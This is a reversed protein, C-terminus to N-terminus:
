WHRGGAVHAWRKSIGLAQRYDTCTSHSQADRAEPCAPTLALPEWTLTGQSLVACGVLDRESEGTPKHNDGQQNGRARSRGTQPWWLSSFNAFLHAPWLGLRLDGGRGQHWASMWARVAAAQGSAM